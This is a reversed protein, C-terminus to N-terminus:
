PAEAAPLQRAQDRTRGAGLRDLAASISDLSSEMRDLREQVDNWVPREGELRRITARARWWAVGFGLALIGLSKLSALLLGLLFPISTDV